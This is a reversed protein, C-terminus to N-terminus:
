PVSVARVQIFGPKRPLVHPFKGLSYFMKSLRRGRGIENMVQLSKKKAFKHYVWGHDHYIDWAICEMKKKRLISNMFITCLEWEVKKRLSM